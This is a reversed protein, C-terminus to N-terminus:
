WDWLCHSVGAVQPPGKIDEGRDRLRRAERLLLADVSPAVAFVALTALARRVICFQLAIRARHIGGNVRTHQIRIGM